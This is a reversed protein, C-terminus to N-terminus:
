VQHRNRDERVLDLALRHQGEAAIEPRLVLGSEDQCVFDALRHSRLDTLCRDATFAFLRFNVTRKEAAMYPRRVPFFVAAIAPEALVLAALAFSNDDDALTAAIRQGAYETILSVGQVENAPM